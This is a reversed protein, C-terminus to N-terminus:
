AAAADKEKVEAKPKNLEAAIKQKLENIRNQLIELSVMAEGYEAMLDKNM